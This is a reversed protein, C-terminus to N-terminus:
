VSSKRMASGAARSAVSASKRVSDPIQNRITWATLSSPSLSAEFSTSTQTVMPLGLWLGLALLLGDADAEGVGLGLALWDGLADFDGEALTEGDTDGDLLPLALWLGEDETDGLGLWDGLRDGEALAEGLLETLLLGDGDDAPTSSPM